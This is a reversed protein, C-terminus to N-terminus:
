WRLPSVLPNLLILTSRALLPRGRISPRREGFGTRFSVTSATGTSFTRITARFDTTGIKVYRAHRATSHESIRHRTPPAEFPAFPRTYFAYKMISNVLINYLISTARPLSLSLFGSSTPPPNTDLDILDLWLITIPSLSIPPNQSATALKTLECGHGNSTASCSELQVYKRM